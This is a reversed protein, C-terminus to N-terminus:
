TATKGHIREEKDRQRLRITAENERDRQINGSEIRTKIKGRDKWKKPENSSTAGVHGREEIQRVTNERKGQGWRM